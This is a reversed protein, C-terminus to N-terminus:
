RPRQVPLWADTWAVQKSDNYLHIQTEAPGLRNAIDVPTRRTLRHCTVGLTPAPQGNLRAAIAARYRELDDETNCVTTGPELWPWRDGLVRIPGPDSSNDTPPKPANARAAGYDGLRFSSPEQAFAPLAAGALVLSLVIVRVM